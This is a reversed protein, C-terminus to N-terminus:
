RDSVRGASTLRGRGLPGAGPRGDCRTYTSANRRVLEAM